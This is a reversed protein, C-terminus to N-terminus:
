TGRSYQIFAYLCLGTIVGLAFYLALLWELRPIHASKKGETIWPWPNSSTEAAVVDDSCCPLNATDIDAWTLSPVDQEPYLAAAALPFASESWEEERVVVSPGVPYPPVDDPQEHFICELDCESRVRGCMPCNTNSSPAVEEGPVPKIFHGKADRPRVWSPKGRGSPTTM